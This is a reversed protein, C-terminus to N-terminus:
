KPSTLTLCPTEILMFKEVFCVKKGILYVKRWISVILNKNLRNIKLKICFFIGLTRIFILIESKLVMGWLCQHKHNIM